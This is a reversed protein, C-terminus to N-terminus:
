WNTLWFFVLVVGCAVAAVKVSDLLTPNEKSLVHAIMGCFIGTLGFTLVLFSFARYALEVWFRLGHLGTPVGESYLAAFVVVGCGANHCPPGRNWKFVGKGKGRWRNLM